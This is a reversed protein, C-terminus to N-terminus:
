PLRPAPPTMPGSSVSTKTTSRTPTRYGASSGSGGRAAAGLRGLPGGEAATRRPCTCGARSAACRPRRRAAAHGARDRGRGGAARAAVRRTASARDHQARPGHDVTAFRWRPRDGGPAQVTVRIRSGARFAHAVPFIPVRVLAFRGRPLPAADRKLHTPRPDLATSARATSSATRRACGATRCTPRAATPGSRASRSRCTPTARPRACRVPRPEVPRRHRRRADLPATAFGVGKGDALPAGTTRRSPRGRTPRATARCRRRRGRRRTPPTTARRRRRPAARDLAGGAGLFLTTPRAERIPWADFGLEWAAGISGPGAPGAGNDMLLRVRPDREFTARAGRRRRDHRRLAVAAVPAAPADALFRYLEDSLASSRSPSARSRTPSTSSSSSSGARSRADARALRRPRREAALAVGEPQRALEGSARARLARRDARGPVPRRPLDARRDHKMWAGPSRHAFLSPRASRTATSSRWARGPDAPAPAPQRHLAPRGGRRARAGVAPRRRARARRRGDPGRDVVRAFGSNRIGGPYGTASTSTTPSRCRRSRRSTRRARAPPSSSPSARSRSGPWASRAARSGRSRPSPRSRTTATTPRRCTSCTSRAARAARAACRCASSRSTRAAARHGLRGRHREAPALPDPEASGGHGVRRRPSCTTRARRDPLRLVRDLTPFPGDALTKGPPLRVTM